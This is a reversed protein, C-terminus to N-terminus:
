ISPNECNCHGLGRPRYCEHVLCANNAGGHRLSKSSGGLTLTPGLNKVIKHLIEEFKANELCFGTFEPIAVIGM